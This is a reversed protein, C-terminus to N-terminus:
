RRGVPSDRLGLLFDCQAFVGGCCNAAEADLSGGERGTLVLGAVVTLAQEISALSVEALRIVTEFRSSSGAAGSLSQSKNAPCGFIPSLRCQWELGISVM